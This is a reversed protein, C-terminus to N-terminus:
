LDYNTSPELRVRVGVVRRGLRGILNPQPGSSTKLEPIPVGIMAIIPDVWNTMQSGATAKDMFSVILWETPWPGSFVHSTETHVSKIKPTSSWRKPIRLSYRLLPSEFPVTPWGEPDAPELWVPNKSAEGKVKLVAREIAGDPDLEQRWQELPIESEVGWRGALDLATAFAKRADILREKTQLATYLRQWTEVSQRLELTARQRNANEAHVIANNLLADAWLRWFDPEEPNLKVLRQAVLGVCNVFDAARRYNERQLFYGVLNACARYMLVGEDYTPYGELVVPEMLEVARQFRILAKFHEGRVSAVLGEGFALKAGLWRDEEAIPEDADLAEFLRRKKSPDSDEVPVPYLSFLAERDIDNSVESLYACGLVVKEVHSHRSRFIKCSAPQSDEFRATVKIDIDTTQLDLYEATETESYHAILRFNRQEDRLTQLSPIQFRQPLHPGPGGPSFEEGDFKLNFTAPQEQFDTGDITQDLEKVRDFWRFKCDVRPRSVNFYHTYPPEYFEFEEPWTAGERYLAFYFSMPQTWLPNLMLQLELITTTPKKTPFTYHDIEISIERIPKECIRELRSAVNPLQRDAEEQIEKKALESRQSASLLVAEEVREGGLVACVIRLAVAEDALGDTADIAVLDDLLDLINCPRLILPLVRLGRARQKLALEAEIIVWRSDVSTPSLLICVVEAQELNDSLEENLIETPKIDFYDLWVDCDHQELLRMIEFASSRDRSSYSIFVRLSL